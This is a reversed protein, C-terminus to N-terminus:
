LGLDSLLPHHDPRRGLPWHYRRDGAKIPLDNISAATGPTKRWGRKQASTEATFPPLPPRSM